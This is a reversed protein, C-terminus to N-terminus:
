GMLGLRRMPRGRSMSGPFDGYRGHNYQYGANIRLAETVRAELDIDVGYLEANTGNATGTGAPSARQVQVDKYDYYYGAVNLRVRRDFLTTKLGAEYADLVEPRFSPLTINLTNYGGSKFGRNASIYGLVADSFQYDLVARWTLKNFRASLNTPPIQVITAGTTLTSTLSADELARKESTYRLGGTLSLRDTLRYTAQAFGAISDTGQESVTANRTIQNAGIAPGLLDQFYYPYASSANFYYAGLLWTLPGSGISQIQLEQSFQKDKNLINIVRGRTPTQDQDFETRFRSQRYATISSVRVAAFDHDIRASVGGNRSKIYPQADLNTDWASGGYAPGFPAPATAGMDLRQAAMSSKSDSYDFILRVRTDEDLDALIKSRVGVEHSVKYVDKGNFLNEGYGDGMAVGIIAFDMAIDPTLGGTVYANGTFTQYNGYSVNVQGSFDQQPDKTRIHILGGTANRGFLTGQPGKLVEVQAINNFSFINANAAAYYVDDVYVAIPTEIGGGTGKTGVGRIIPLASGQNSQVEVGPMVVKLSQVDAIGAAQLRASSAVAVSIPVKQLNQERRQATVVIDELERSDSAPTLTPGESVASSQATAEPAAQGYASTVGFGALTTAVFLYGKLHM